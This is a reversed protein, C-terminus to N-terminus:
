LEVRLAALLLNQRSSAGGVDYDALYLRFHWVDQQFLDALIFVLSASARFGFRLVRRVLATIISTSM